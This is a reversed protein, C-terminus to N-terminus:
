QVLLFAASSVFAKMWDSFLIKQFGLYECCEQPLSFCIIIETPSNHQKVIKVSVIFM